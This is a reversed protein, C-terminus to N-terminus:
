AECSSIRSEERSPLGYSGWYFSDNESIGDLVSQKFSEFGTREVLRATEVIARVKRTNAFRTLATAECHEAYKCIAAASEWDCFCLSIFNFSRRVVAERFGSCLIVWSAERLLDTETFSAFVLSDQWAIEASYGQALVSRKAAQYFEFTRVEETQM